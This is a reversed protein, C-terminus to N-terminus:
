SKGSQGDALSRLWNLTGETIWTPSDLNHLHEIAEEMERMRRGAHLRTGTILREVLQPGDPGLEAGIQDLMWSDAGTKGAATVSEYVLGALGKMFVSRLLKRGAAAGAEGPIVEIPAGLPAIRESLTGAGDGSALLPTRCGARPVPAMVAVDAFPIDYNAVIKALERKLDPGGTNFDAFISSPSMGAVAETTVDKAVAAGVLSIVVDADSVAASLSPALRVGPLEPTANPDFGVVDGGQEALGGAYLSGAEGLGLIAIKM